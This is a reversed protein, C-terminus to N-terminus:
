NSSEDYFFRIVPGILNNQADFFKLQYLKIAEPKLIIDEGYAYAECETLSYYGLDILMSRIRDNNVSAICGRKIQEVKIHHPLEKLLTVGYIRFKYKLSLTGLDYVRISSPNGKKIGVIVLYSAHFLKAKRLIEEISQRGRNVRKSSPIVRQLENLFSRVRLPADRTSTLIVRIHRIPLVQGSPVVSKVIGYM